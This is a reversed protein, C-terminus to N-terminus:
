VFWVSFIGGPDDSNSQLYDLEGLFSLFLAGTGIGWAAIMYSIANPKGAKVMWAAILLLGGLIYDDFWFMFHSLDTLQNFRRITEALPLFIGMILAMIYSAKLTKELM